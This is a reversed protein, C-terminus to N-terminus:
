MISNKIIETTQFVQEELTGSFFVAEKRGPTAELTELEMKEVFSAKLLSKLDIKDIKKKKAKMISRLTPYKPTNLGKSTGIVCPLPMEIVHTEGMEFEREVVVTQEILSFQTVENVVPMNLEAALRYQTQMNETDVSGKGTFILDPVGDEEFAKKLALATMRSEMPMNDTCLWIGRDAGMAIATRISAEANADGLSIAVVEGGSGQGVSVAEEVAFEDYPNLVFQLQSDCIGNNEFKIESATDLVSKVCVAIKM